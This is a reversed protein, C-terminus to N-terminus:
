KTMSRTFSKQYKIQMVRRYSITVAYARVHFLVCLQFRHSRFKAEARKLCNRLESPNRSMTPYVSNYM